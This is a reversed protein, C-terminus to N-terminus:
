LVVYERCMVYLVESIRSADDHVEGIRSTDRVESIRPMDCIDSIGSM